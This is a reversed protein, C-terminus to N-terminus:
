PDLDLVAFDPKELNSVRSNWPHIDICGLNVMYLLSNLDRCVFYNIYRDNSASYVKKTELWDPLEYDIDKHYFCEGLIGDPCRNLSQLRDKIYPLIFPSIKEYYEFLEKKTIKEEPWFVKDPNTLIVKTSGYPPVNINEPRELIVEKAKKDIRLGIYVPHRMLNKQTWESFEIEAVLEPIVWHPKSNTKPMIKFPQSETKLKLLKEYLEDIEKEDLGGGVQGTFVLEGNDYVGTILSGIKQRSGRPNTYGCIIIEQRKKSKIKLWTRSRRGPEYTSDKKKAIIGELDNKTAIKFFNIGDNEIYDSLRIHGSEKDPFATFQAIIEKLIKKRSILEVDLLNFGNIFLIDFIYYVIFGKKTRIYQQLLKFDSKGKEDLVVIEGDFVATDVPLKELSRAVPEFQKNFSIGNRSYLNVIKNKIESIVRYGDWKIEYIWQSSDFEKETLTALMPRLSPIDSSKKVGKLDNLRGPLSSLNNKKDEAPAKILSIDINSAFEDNKKIFLWNKPSEKKLRVLAFEGKMFNGELIFTLHGKEIENRLIGSSKEKDETGYAHYTGRDWIYVQGAGYNGEPINGEFEKYELPHDEVMVALRKDKPNITPGKPIAWSKLVGDLELRLDFHLHSAFHKHIVFELKEKKTKGKDLNPSKAKIPNDNGVSKENKGIGPEPTKEFNRKEKYSELSMRRKRQKKM